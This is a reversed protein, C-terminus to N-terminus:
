SSESFSGVFVSSTMGSSGPLESLATPSISALPPPLPPVGTYASSAYKCGHMEVTLWPM